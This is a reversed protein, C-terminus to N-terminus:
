FNIDVQLTATDALDRNNYFQYGFIVSTSPTFQWSFGLNLAGYASKTGQYEVCVWLKDSMETMTREWALLLGDADKASDQNLLLKDNGGFYGASFRGLSFGKVSVTKAAEIYIINDDTKDIKTGVDYIGAAVAPLHEAYPFDGKFVGEPVALKANFYIPYSDLSGYGTKYDFGAEANLKKFPLLGFTLGTNTITDPRSGDSSREVPIYVDATIHGTGYGQTDTSPAWIHTTATAYALDYFYFISSFVALAAFSIKLCKM